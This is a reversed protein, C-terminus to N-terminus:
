PCFDLGVLIFVTTIMLTILICIAWWLGDLGKGLKRESGSGSGSGLVCGGSAAGGRGFRIGGM